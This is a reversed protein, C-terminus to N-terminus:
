NKMFRILICSKGVGKKVFDNSSDGVIILKLLYSYLSM